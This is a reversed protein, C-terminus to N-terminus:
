AKRYTAAASVWLKATEALKHDLIIWFIDAERIPMGSRDKNELVALM